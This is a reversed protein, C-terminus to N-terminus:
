MVANIANIAYGISPSLMFWVVVFVVVVVFVAGRTGNAARHEIQRELQDMGTTTADVRLPLETLVGLADSVRRQEAESVAGPM